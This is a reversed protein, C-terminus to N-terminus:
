YGCGGVTLLVRLARGGLSGVRGGEGHRGCPGWVRLDGAGAGWFHSVTLEARAGGEV